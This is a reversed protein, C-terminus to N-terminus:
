KAPMCVFYTIYRNYVDYGNSDSDDVIDYISIPEYIYQFVFLVRYIITKSYSVINVNTNMNTLRRIRQSNLLDVDQVHGAVSLWHDGQDQPNQFLFDGVSYTFYYNSNVVIKVGSHMNTHVGNVGIIYYLFWPCIYPTSIPYM